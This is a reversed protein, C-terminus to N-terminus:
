VEERRRDDDTTEVETALFEMMEEKRPGLWSEWEDDAAEVEYEEPPEEIEPETQTFAPGFFAVDNEGPYFTEYLGELLINSERTRLLEGRLLNKIRVRDGQLNEKDLVVVIRGAREKAEKPEFGQSEFFFRVSRIKKLPVGMGVNKKPPPISMFAALSVSASPPPPPPLLGAPAIIPGSQRPPLLPGHAPRHESSQIFMIACIAHLLLCKKLM